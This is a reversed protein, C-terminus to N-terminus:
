MNNAIDIFIDLSINEARCSLDLDYKNLISNIKDLDYDFLNNKINKRKYRFSDRVLKKFLNIDKIEKRNKRLEMSIVASDVNPVPQFSNRSVDFLKRINYYYNLFVTLSGYDKSGIKASFRSAVEKQIMIVMKDPLVDEDIFKIIIPTTIYYPLNAVVYVKSLKNNSLDKKLDSDLFDGIKLIYNDYDKLMNNISEELGYDAEYLLAKGCLPVIKKTLAGGGPGIEIVLTDMDINSKSIINNIVNDDKLFNQGLSKKYNFNM